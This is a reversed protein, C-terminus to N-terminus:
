MLPHNRIAVPGVLEDIIVRFTRNCVQSCLVIVIHYLRATEHLRRTYIAVFINSAHITYTGARKNICAVSETYKRTGVYVVVISYYLEARLM